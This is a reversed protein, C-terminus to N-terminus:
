NWAICNCYLVSVNDLLSSWIIILKTINYDFEFQPFRVFHSTDSSVHNMNHGTLSRPVITPLPFVGLYQDLLGFASVWCYVLCVISVLIAFFFSMFFRLAISIASSSLLFPLIHCHHTVREWNSTQFLFQLLQLM